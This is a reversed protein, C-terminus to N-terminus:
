SIDGGSIMEDIIEKIKVRAEALTMGKLQAGAVSMHGGGGIKEMMVQVNVDDISRASVYIQEGVQTLVVAAKIGDIELLSNAAQAGIVTPSDALVADCESLAFHERYIEAKDIADARAKYDNFSDRFMKRVRTTNAGARKLFAAAEFTRVGTQNIFNQTDIVIGGYMADAELSSLKVDMGIYQIIETIMECASSAYPEVYTLVANDIAEATKRHHDVVTVNGAKSLLRPEEIIQPRNVDVVAVVTQKDVLELAKDGDIFLDEPYDENGVFREYLPSLSRSPKGICIWAKKGFTTAIRWFGICAGLSDVDANKHGMVILKDCTNLLDRLAQAKVRAKVRAHKEKAETKGGFFIVEDGDKLVAQDGGRGLAFEIAARASEYNDNYQKGSKGVGISLTIDMDNGINITKVEDLISFKDEIMRGVDKETMFFFYKDKELKKVIGNLSNIYGSIRRDVLATLLSRRVEEVSALAEDYNDLYILGECPRSEEYAKKYHVRETEDIVTMFIIPKANESIGEDETFTSPSLEILYRRDAYNSHILSVEGLGSLVERSVDPFVSQINSGADETFADTFADNKWLISGNDDVIASAISMENLLKSEIGGFGQAFSILGAYLDKRSYIYLAVSFITFIVTFILMTVGARPDMIILVINLLVLVVSLIVPWRLYVAISFLSNNRSKM